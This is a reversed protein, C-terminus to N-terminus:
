FVVLPLHSNSAGRYIESKIERWSVSSEKRKADQEGEM